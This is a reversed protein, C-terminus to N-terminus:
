PPTSKPFNVSSTQEHCIIHSPISSTSHPEWLMILNKRENCCLQILYKSEIFDEKGDTMYKIVTDRTTLDEFRICYGVEQGLRCGYEEAVRKSVSM